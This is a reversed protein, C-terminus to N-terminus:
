KEKGIKANKNENNSLIIKAEAQKKEYEESTIKENKLLYDGLDEATAMDEETIGEQKVFAKEVTKFIIKIDEFM